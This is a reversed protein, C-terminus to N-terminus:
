IDVAKERPVGRGVGVVVVFEEAVVLVRCIHPYLFERNVAGFQLLYTCRERFLLDILEPM